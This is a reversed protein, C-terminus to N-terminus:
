VVIDLLTNCLIKRNMNSWNYFHFMDLNIIIKLQSINTTCYHKCNHIGVMKVSSTKFINKSRINYKMKQSSVYIKKPFKNTIPFKGDITNAWITHFGFVDIEPKSRIFSYLPIKVYMYEDLDCFIMYENVNKGYKYLAHSIQGMQAHHKYKYKSPNWYPFDWEILVVNPLNFIRIIEETPKGNYYMYFNTVGQNTYYDYFLPFLLYDDKFLTTLALKHKSDIANDHIHNLVYSISSENYNVTIHITNEMKGVNYKYICTPEYSNKVYEESIKLLQKANENSHFWIEFTNSYFVTNYIPMIMYIDGNKYFIDFFLYQTESIQFYNVSLM